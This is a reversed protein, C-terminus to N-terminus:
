WAGGPGSANGAWSRAVAAVVVLAVAHRGVADAAAAVEAATRELGAVQDALRQRFADAAPSRWPVGDAAAVRAGLARLEAALQDLSRSAAQVPAPDPGLLRFGQAALEEPGM